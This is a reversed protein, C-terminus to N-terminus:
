KQKLAAYVRYAESVLHDRGQENHDYMYALSVDCKSTFKIGRNPYNRKEENVIKRIKDAFWQKIKVTDKNMKDWRIFWNNCCDNSHFYNQYSESGPLRVIICVEGKDNTGIDVFPWYHEMTRSNEWMGDSLQGLVNQLVSKSTNDTLGTSIVLNMNTM